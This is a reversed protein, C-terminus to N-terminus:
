NRKESIVELDTISKINSVQLSRMIVKLIDNDDITIKGHVNDYKINSKILQRLSNVQGKSIELKMIVVLM